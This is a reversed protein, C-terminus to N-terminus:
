FLPQFHFFICVVTTDSNDTIDRDIHSEVACIRPHIRFQKRKVFIHIGNFHCATRRISERSCALKPSIREVAPFIVPLCTIFPPQLTKRMAKLQIICHADVMESTKVLIIGNWISRFSGDCAVPFLSRPDIKKVPHALHQSFFFDNCFIKAIYRIRHSFQDM